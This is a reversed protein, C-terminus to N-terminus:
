FVSCHYKGLRVKQLWQTNNEMINELQQLRKMSWQAEALSPADRQLSNSVQYEAAPLACNGTEPLLFTYTCTGHQVRHQLREPTEKAKVQLGYGSPLLNMATWMALLHYALVGQKGM